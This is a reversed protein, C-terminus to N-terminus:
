WSNETPAMGRLMESKLKQSTDPSLASITDTGCASGIMPRVLHRSSGDPRAPMGAWTVTSYGNKLTSSNSASASAVSDTANALRSGNRNVMGDTSQNPSRIRYRVVSGASGNLFSVAATTSDKGCLGGYPPSKSPVVGCTVTAEFPRVATSFRAARRTAGRRGMEASAFSTRSIASSWRRRQRSTAVKGSPAVFPEVPSLATDQVTWEQVFHQRVDVIAVREKSIAGVTGIETRQSFLDRDTMEFSREAAGNSRPDHEKGFSTSLWAM